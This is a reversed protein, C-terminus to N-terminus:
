KIPCFKSHINVLTKRIDINQFKKLYNFTEERKNPSFIELTCGYEYYDDIAKVRRPCFIVNILMIETLFQGLFPSKLIDNLLEDFAKRYSELIEMKAKCDKLNSYKEFVKSRTQLWLCLFKEESSRFYNHELYKTINNSEKVDIDNEYNNQLELCKVIRYRQNNFWIDDYYINSPFKEPREEKANIMDVVKEIIKKLEDESVNFLNAFAKQINKRLYLGILRHVFTIDIREQKSLYNLVPVLTQWNPNYISENQWNNINQKYDKEPREKEIEKYFAEKSDFLGMIDNFAEKYSDTLFKLVKEKSTKFANMPIISLCDKESSDDDIYHFAEEQLLYLAIENKTKDLIINSKSYLSFDWILVKLNAHFSAMVLPPIKYDEEIEKFFQECYVQLSAFGQDPMEGENMRELKRKYSSREREGVLNLIVNEGIIDILLKSEEGFTIKGYKDAEQSEKKKKM